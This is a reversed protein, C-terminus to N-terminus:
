PKEYDVPIMTEIKVGAARARAKSQEAYRQAEERTNFRGARVRYWRRGKIEAAIVYAAVGARTLKDATAKAEAENPSSMVQLTIAGQSMDEAPTSAAPQSTPQSAAPQSTTPQSATPPASAQPDAPLPNPKASETPTPKSQTPADSKMLPLIVVFFLAILSAALLLIAIPLKLRSFGSPKPPEVLVPWENRSTEWAPLPDAWPDASRSALAGSEQSLASAASQEVAVPRPQENLSQENLSQENLSQEAITHETLPQSNAGAQIYAEPVELPQSHSLWQYQPVEYSPQPPEADFTFVVEDSQEATLTEQALPQTDLYDPVEETHLNAFSVDPTEVTIVPDSSTHLAFQSAPLIVYILSRCPACLRTGVSGNSASQRCLPCVTKITEVQM